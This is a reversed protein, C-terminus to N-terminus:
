SPVGGTLGGSSTRQKGHPTKKRCAQMKVRSKPDPFLSSLFIGVFAAAWVVHLDYMVNSTFSDTVQYSLAWCMYSLMFTVQGYYTV